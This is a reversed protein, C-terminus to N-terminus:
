LRPMPLIQTLQCELFGFTFAFATVARQCIIKHTMMTSVPTDSPLPNIVFPLEQAIIYKRNATVTVIAFTFVM